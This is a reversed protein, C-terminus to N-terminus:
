EKRPKRIARTQTVNSIWEMLTAADRLFNQPEDDEVFEILVYRSDGAEGIVGLYDSWEARGQSLPRRTLKGAESEWHYAHIHSLRDRIERLGQLRESHSVGLPPQWYTSLARHPVSDLLRRTSRATDTLTKAHFEYAVEVGAAAAMETIRASDDIVRKWYSEDAAASGLKGAWVRIVPAKLELASDLVSQFSLGETESEAVRYYSGYSCVELGMAETMISVKRAKELDGHPVHIDGGWEIGRLPSKSVLQIVEEPSLKRFTVSVLGGQLMIRVRHIFM